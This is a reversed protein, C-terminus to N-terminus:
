GLADHPFLPGLDLPCAVSHFLQNKRDIGGATDSRGMRGRCVPASESYVTM